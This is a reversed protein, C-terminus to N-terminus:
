LGAAVVGVASQYFPCQPDPGLYDEKGAARAHALAVARCGRCVTWYRCSDCGDHYEQRSRLSWLVPSEAWVRRFDNNRVNGITLDMRRCPMIAGDAAITVGFVGAACGAVPFEGEPVEGDLHAVAALPDRTIVAVKSGAALRRVTDFFGALEQPSLVQQGLEKGRGCPVLRSFTVASVGLDEGLRVLGDLQFLNVRSITVNVNTDIGAELLHSIGRLTQRFAGRGRISDHVAELGDLSVQVDGIGLRRLQLAIDRTMLTGNSMLSASFGATRACELITLLGRKMLPEGGSFHFSPSISMDYERVWSQVACAVEGMARCTEEYTMEGASTEQYCHRCKLNCRETLHWQVFFDYTTGEM